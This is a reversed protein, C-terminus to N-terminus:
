HLNYTFSVHLMDHLRTHPLPKDTGNKIMTVLHIHTTPAVGRRKLARFFVGTGM